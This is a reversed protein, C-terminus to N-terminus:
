LQELDKSLYFEIQHKFTKKFHKETKYEMEKQLEKNFMQPISLTYLAKLKSKKGANKIRRFVIMNGNKGKGVFAGKVTKYGGNKKIKVDVGGTDGKKM